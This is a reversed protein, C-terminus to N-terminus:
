REPASISKAIWKGDAKHFSASGVIGEVAFTFDIVATAETLIFKNVVLASEGDTAIRVPHGAAQLSAADIATDTRNLLKLPTRNPRTDFHYYQSLVPADLLLQLVERTDRSRESLEPSSM